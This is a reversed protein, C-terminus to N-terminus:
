PSPARATLSGSRDVTSSLNGVGGGGRRSSSQAAATAAAAVASALPLVLVMHLQFFALPTRTPDGSGRFCDGAWQRPLLSLFSFGHVPFSHPM